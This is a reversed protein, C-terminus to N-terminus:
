REAGPGANQRVTLRAGKRSNCGYHAAQCNTREHKGGAALPVIHDLSASMPDPWELNPDIPKSCIGCVWSDREFIESSVVDEVYADLMLARRKHRHASMIDPHEKAWKRYYSRVKDKNASVWQKDYRVKKVLRCADSCYLVNASVELTIEKGCEVCNSGKKERFKARRRLSKKKDNCSISCTVADSRRTGPIERGCVICDPSRAAKKAETRRHSRRAEYCTNSCVSADSRYGELSNGCWECKRETM